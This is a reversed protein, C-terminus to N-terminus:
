KEGIYLIDSYQRTAIEEIWRISRITAFRVVSPVREFLRVYMRTSLLPDRLKIQRRRRPFALSRKDVVIDHESGPFFEFSDNDEEDERGITKTRTTIKKSFIIAAARRQKKPLDSYYVLQERVTDDFSFSPSEHRGEDHNVTQKMSCKKAITTTTTANVDNRDRHVFGVLRRLNRDDRSSEDDDVIDAGNSSNPSLEDNESNDNNDLYRKLWEDDDVWTSLSFIVTGRNRRRSTGSYTSTSRMTRNSARIKAARLSAATAM